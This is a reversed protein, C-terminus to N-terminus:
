GVRQIIEIMNGFPDRFQFRDHGPILPQERMPYGSESVRERWQRIDSVQYAVHARTRSRDVDDELGIHLEFTGANLWLGRSTFTAPRPIESMGMFGVYFARARELDATPVNVQVHNVGLITLPM